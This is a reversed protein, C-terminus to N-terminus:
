WTFSYQVVPTQGRPAWIRVRTPRESLGSEDVFVIVRGQKAANKKACALAQDEMRAGKERRAAACAEVAEPALVGHGSAGALDAVGVLRCWVRAHGIASGAAADLRRHCLGSGYPRQAVAQGTAESRRRGAIGAPRALRDRAPWGPRTTRATRELRFRHIQGRRDQASGRSTPCRQAAPARGEPPSRRTGQRLDKQGHICGCHARM